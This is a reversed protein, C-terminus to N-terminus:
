KSTAVCNRGKHKAMYMAQDARAILTELQLTNEDKTAVGISVTIAIERDSIKIPKVVISSRLREAIQLATERDTEPLLIILEEGGYRGVLDIERVSEKCRRAFEKLVQDGVPHGYTDNVQKFHDLDLMMCCFPRNLRHARAFEVQGLEFLSRRNQLGTLHDTLALSQVEQFLRARELSVGIQKAFISMIPLDAKTLNEGWIWLIGLLNEEFVLPLRLPEREPGVGIAYLLDSVGQRPIGAFLKQIEDVPSSLVIPYLINEPGLKDPALTYRIMPYGLGNEVIEIFEPEMSTYSVNFLNKDSDYVAMICTLEIKKLEEGLNRMIDDISFAKEMHTTIQALAYILDNSHALQDLWKREAQAKRIQEMAIAIQGALTVLLREDDETFADKKTSEANIVGLIREKFKIPVSLESVTREDVDLYEKVRRVNGIRQAMGTRAVQGTIGKDLPVDMMHREESSYFRYSPHAHLIEAQDDLLLIGFNDLFLNQGIIDTVRNILEDENDVDISILAIDHLATLQKVQKREEELSLSKSLVLAVQEAATRAREMDTPTFSRSENYGLLLSGLKRKQTILPIVLMSHSPYIAAIKPDIYPSDNLDTIAIPEGAELAFTSPVQDQPEFQIDLYIDSMSGHAVAPVPVQKTEDWLSFFCDDAGFLRGISETLIELTSTLSDAELARGTISGLRELFNTHAQREREYKELKLIAERRERTVTALSGVVLSILFLSANGMLNGPSTFWGTDSPDAIFIIATNVLVLIVSTLSGGRIGFYWSAGIVPIIALAAIGSGMRDHYTAFFAVYIAFTIIILLSPLRNNDPYALTKM